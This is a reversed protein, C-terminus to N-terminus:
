ESQPYIRGKWGGGRGQWHCRASDITMITYLFAIIPLSFAWLSSLRYFRITPFYAISMLLWALFATITVLENKTIIGWIVGLPPVLYILTMGFVTGVLLWISYNLQTFATRIVMSWISNLSTYARLSATKKTLGLWIKGQPPNPIPSQPNQSTQQEKKPQSDALNKTLFQKNNESIDLNVAQSYGSNDLANNPINLQTNAVSFDDNQLSQQENKVQSDALNNTAVQLPNGSNGLKVAKALACDDILANRVVQIGGIRTLSEQRILICGGAAAATSKQPNNVWRFPYLKEFFFIFAPILLKEWFSECRLRVMLSVLDLNETEAQAVLRRLNNADHVIDADTLLLYKSAPQLNSAYEIGQQMAWLKGTWSPPLPKGSIVQLQETKNLEQAVNKAINATNDTSGDDVLVIQFFGPYNQSLLSKLTVPLLEAENRAPIVACIPPFDEIETTSNDLILDSLWFQGRFGLLYLWIVLSLLTLTLGIM